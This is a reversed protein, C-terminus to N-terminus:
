EVWSASRRRRLLWLFFPGGLLSTVVGVPVEVPAFLTRGLADCLVLFMGGALATAPLLRRHGPGVLGRMGHPVILGVFGIMGSLAVAAATLLTALGLALATIIAPSVGLHHAMEPGLTLADLDRALWLVGLLAVAILAAGVMLLAGSDAQLNGLLWWVVGHLGEVPALSILLMLLSSMVSSIIVGSLLLGYRSLHGHQRALTYVLALTIVALLFAGAPLAFVSYATWGLLIVLGAGLGAGSSVGLVYPEALPNRLVAQLVAGAVALGAGVAFGCVVRNLRLSLIARGLETRPDPWITGSGGVLLAGVLAVPALLGLLWLIRSNKM